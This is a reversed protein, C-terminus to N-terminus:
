IVYYVICRGMISAIYFIITHGLIVWTMSFFRIGNICNIAGKPQDANLVKRANSYFSFALIAKSLIGVTLFAFDYYSLSM